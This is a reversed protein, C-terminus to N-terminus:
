CNQDLLKRLHQGEREPLGGDELDRFVERAKECNKGLIEAQILGMQSRQIGEKFDDLDEQFAGEGSLSELEKKQESISIEFFRTAEGFKGNELYSNALDLKELFTAQPSNAAKEFHSLAEDERGLMSLSQALAYSVMGSQPYENNLEQLLAEVREEGGEKEWIRGLEFVAVPNEPNIQLLRNLYNKATEPDKNMYHLALEELSIEHRPNEKLVEKLLEVGGEPDGEELKKLGAVAMENEKEKQTPALAPGKKASEEPSKRELLKKIKQYQLLTKERVSAGKSKPETKSESESKEEMSFNGAGSSPKDSKFYALVLVPFFILLGWKLVNM